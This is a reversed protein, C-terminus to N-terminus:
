VVGSNEPDFALQDNHSRQQLLFPKIRFLHSTCNRPIILRLLVANRAIDNAFGAGARVPFMLPQPGMNSKMAVAIAPRQM